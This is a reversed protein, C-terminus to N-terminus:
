EPIPTGAPVKEKEKLPVAALAGRLANVRQLCQEGLEGLTGARLRIMEEILLLLDDATCSVPDKELVALVDISRDNLDDLAAPDCYGTAFGVFGGRVRRAVGSVFKGPHLREKIANVDVLKRKDDSKNSQNKM